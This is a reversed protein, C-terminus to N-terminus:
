HYRGHARARTAITHIMLRSYYTWTCFPHRAPTKHPTICHHTPDAHIGDFRAVIIVTVCDAALLKWPQMAKTVEVGDEAEAGDLQAAFM